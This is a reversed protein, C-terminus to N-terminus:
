KLNLIYACIHCATLWEKHWVKVQSKISQTEGLVHAMVIIWVKIQSTIFHTQCRRTGYYHNLSKSTIHRITNSLSRHWLLSESKTIHHLTNSLSTFRLLSESKWKHHSSTHNVAVHAMVIIWVKIQTTIFQTRCIRTGYCHNLSKSTMHHVTNSM